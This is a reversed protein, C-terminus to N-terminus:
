LILDQFNFKFLFVYWFLLLGIFGNIYPFWWYVRYIASPKFLLWLSALPYLYALYTLITSPFNQTFLIASILWLVTCVILSWREKLLVATTTLNAKKDSAIDPVASFIHMSATWSWAAVVAWLPPFQGSLLTYAVFGIVAYHVNSIADIFPKAKFRFPLSSYAWALFLFVLFLITAKLNPILIALLGGLALSGYVLNKLWSRETSRLRHEKDDKKSNFEDTDQDFMDNIGYIFINAPIMFYVLLSLVLSSTLQSLDSAGAVAGVWFTGGAYLWFRPRSIKILTKLKDM